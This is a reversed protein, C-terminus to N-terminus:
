PNSGSFLPAYKELRRKTLEIQSERVDIGIARRGNKVAVALTTGSGCFCDLVVGGPPCFCRVFPDALSEPFPAENEHALRDGMLGGGVKCEILNGHNALVPPKYEGDRPRSGDAKRRTQVKHSPRPKGCTVDDKDGGTGGTSFSHGWQNVRAGSSVRHSMAGGPAWKPPHGNATNNSWPLKGKSACVVFEYDNRWWDPGGSGAIGVRCFAIPKRLHIGARHLDAGLLFPTASWRFQRTQGEVVWAVLGKCVRCCEVYRPVAWDVWDQGRLNFDIGYTRAAEYPPSCFVLDVSADPMSRMLDLCDGQLLTANGIIVPESM